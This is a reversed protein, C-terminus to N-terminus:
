ALQKKIGIIIIAPAVFYMGVNLLILSIGYGLVSEESDMNVHNLVSLSTLLPTLTIKVADKFIPNEREYDAIHPSFSYYFENFSNIFLTGSETQLLKNDRLERLQQVQPALESGYTATAILCGGGEKNTSDDDLSNQSLIEFSDITEEFRPLQSDFENVGNSYAFTYVKETDYIMIERFKVDFSENNSFFTGVANIVYAQNGNISVKEESIINLNGAEVVRKITETKNMILDDLTRQNTEEVTLSIVPNIAGIKPGVAVVDPSNSQTKEPTQLLWGEPVSFGIEHETSEYKQNGTSPTITSETREPEELDLLNSIESRSVVYAKTITVEASNVPQDNPKTQVAAIKDLTEFSEETVLRGFVTYQEDLFNSDAHVIFFQSGGSNPDASRAMSVIGRNHKITNFEADVSTSPGGTGWTSPDGDITNPDGGQIMFGPIIRHFIVGDYFGSEVLGIFNEVHKPADDPFFEIIITGLNTELVTLQDDTQAFVYNGFSVLIISLSFILFIKNM